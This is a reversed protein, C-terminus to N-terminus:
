NSKAHELKAHELITSFNSEIIRGMIELRFGNVLQDNQKAQIKVSLGIKESVLREIEALEGHISGVAYELRVPGIKELLKREFGVKSVKAAKKLEKLDSESIKDLQVSSIQSVFRKFLIEQFEKQYEPEIGRNFVEKFNGVFQEQAERGVEKIMAPKQAELADKTRQIILASEKKIRENTQSKIEEGIIMAEEIIQKNLAATEISEKQKQEAFTKKEKELAIKLKDGEELEAENKEIMRITPRYVFYALLWVLLGFNVMQAILLQIDIGFNGLFQM